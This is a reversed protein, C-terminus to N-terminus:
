LGVQSAANDRFLSGERIYRRVMQVSRHGTQDMISRESAGAAAASTALGARLSHGAFISADLGVLEAARKVILAVARDCLRAASLRGHRDVARFVPGSSIEAADLWARLARVPCTATRSGFPVGVKRGEGEQDTKSRRITVVLGDETFAVDAVDLAVLESRRFAGAFGVLLLARDRLGLLDGRTDKLAARLQGVLLPAKRTQATGKSRRIGKFVESVTAHRLSAPSDHGAASHVKAIAALRRTLTAPKLVDAHDALYLAVTEPAAPMPTLSHAVCWGEFDRWDARYARLTAPAKAMAIYERARTAASSVLAVSGSPPLLAANM